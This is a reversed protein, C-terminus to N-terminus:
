SLAPPARPAALSRAADAVSAVAGRPGRAVAVIPLPFAISPPVLSARADSQARCLPCSGDRHPGGDHDVHESTALAAPCADCSKLAVDAAAHHDSTAVHRVHVHPVVVQAILALVAVLAAVSHRTATIVRHSM